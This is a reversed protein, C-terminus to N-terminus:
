GRDARHERVAVLREGALEVGPQVSLDSVPRADFGSRTTWRSQSRGHIAMCGSPRLAGSTGAPEVENAIM